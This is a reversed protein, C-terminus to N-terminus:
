AMGFHFHQMEVEGKKNKQEAATKKFNAIDGLMNPLRRAEGSTVVTYM